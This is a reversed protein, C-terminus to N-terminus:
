RAVLGRVVQGVTQGAIRQLLRAQARMQAVQAPSQAINSGCNAQEFLRQTIVSFPAVDHGFRIVAHRERRRM